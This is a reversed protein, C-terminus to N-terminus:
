DDWDEDDWDEDLEGTATDADEWGYRVMESSHWQPFQQCWRELEGKIAEADWDAPVNVIGSEKFGKRTQLTFMLTRTGGPEQYIMPM